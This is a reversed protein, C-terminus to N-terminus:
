PEAGHPEADSAMVYVSAAHGGPALVRVHEIMGAEILGALVDRRERQNLRQTARSLDRASIKGRRAIIRLVLQSSAQADTEAVYLATEAIMREGSWMALDRAFAFDDLTVAPSESDRGIALITAVRLAMEVTRSLLPTEDTRREIERDFALWSQRAAESHWPVTVAPKEAAGSHCSAIVLPGGKNYIARTKAEISEPVDFPDARPEASAPRNQTSLVLFRNLFGNHMDAGQLAAYFEEHTSVGYLSLAPAHITRAPEGAWEPTTMTQFSRGWAERLVQSVGREHPSAKRNNVRALYAGFEDMACCTLPARDLRRVVASLSMFQSPGIHAAMGAANLVRNIQNLAHDKGAGTRALGLVYLHTGSRTPGAYKRGAATGVIALAAGLALGPQPRSSSDVIWRAIEGVLGPAALLHAPIEQSSPPSPTVTRGTSEEVLDGAATEVVRRPPPAPVTFAGDNLGLKERLWAFADDLTWNNAACILDLATYAVDAGFDRIGDPHMQLNLKRKELPQGSGSPRWTAVAEYGGRRTSRLGYLDLAPVWADLNALAADNTERWLNPDDDHVDSSPRRTERAHEAVEGGWGMSELTDHLRDLCTEDFLPLEEAAVPGSIWRYTPGYPHISPPMVTQRTQNGTLLDVVRRKNELNYGRSKIEPPARYFLTMGKAGVKIMPSSPCARRIQDVEDHDSSDIDVAILRHQGIATGLVVGVNADEWAAWARMEFVSPLRDRFRPWDSMVKWLHGQSRVGPAKDRPRLPIPSYGLELLQPAAQAFPSPGPPTGATAPNM